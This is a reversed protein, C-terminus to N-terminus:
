FAGCTVTKGCEATTGQRSVHSLAGWVIIIHGSRLIDFRTWVPLQELTIYAVHFEGIASIHTTVFHAVCTYLRILTAYTLLSEEPFIVERFMESCMSFAQRVM